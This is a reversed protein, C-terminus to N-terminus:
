LRCTYDFALASVAIITDLPAREPWTSDWFPRYPLLMGYLVMGGLGDIVENVSGLGDNSDPSGFSEFAGTPWIM